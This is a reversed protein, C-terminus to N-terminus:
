SPLELEALVPFHDSARRVDPSDLVDYSRVVFAPDVLVGDIRRRPSRVSFTPVPDAGAGADRLGATLATWVPGGPPENFDGCLVLPASVEGGASGRGAASLRATADLIEEVHRLRAAPELDLHTGALTFRSGALSLEALALGRRHLGPVASLLVDEASHVRVAVRCLLLNGAASRGGTVVVLGSRRALAACRARWRLFRPAEQICVVDPAAARIVRAVADGDDRLSRVNYSLVRLATM